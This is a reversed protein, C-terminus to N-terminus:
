YECTYTQIWDVGMGERMRAGRGREFEQERMGEKERDAWRAKPWKTSDAHSHTSSGMSSSSTAQSPGYGQLFSVRGIRAGDNGTAGRISPLTPLDM